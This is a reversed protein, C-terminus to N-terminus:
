NPDVRKIGRPYKHVSTCGTATIRVMEGTQVGARKDTTVVNPQVVLYMGERLEMDPVPFIERSRSGLIPPLYGGGFGHVLDDWITFGGDEIVTAAEIIEEPRTGPKLVACINDFAEMAVDHLDKFLPTADAGVTITRLIQGAYGWYQASLETAIVDGKKVKRNSLFQRPVCHDPSNMDNIMFYHTQSIAGHKVFSREVLDGLQYESMGIQLGEPIAGIGADSLIAGIKMWSHEEESKILRMQTFDESMDILSSTYANLQNHQSVTFNGIIGIKSSAGGRKKLEGLASGLASIGGWRVDTLRAILQAMPLHNYHNVFLVPEEDLMMLLVADHTTHWGTFYPIAPGIRLFGRILAFSVGREAMKQGFVSRRRLLESDSFRPYEQTTIRQLDRSFKVM